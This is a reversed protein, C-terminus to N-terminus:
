NFHSNNTIIKEDVAPQVNALYNSTGTNFSKESKVTNIYTPIHTWLVLVVSGM